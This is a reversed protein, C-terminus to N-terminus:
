CLHYRPVIILNMIWVLWLASFFQILFSIGYVMPFKTLGFTQLLVLALVASSGSCNQPHYKFFTVKRIM